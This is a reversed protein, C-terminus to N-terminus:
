YGLCTSFGLFEPQLPLPMRATACFKRWVVSQRTRTGVHLFVYKAHMCLAVVIAVFCQMGVRMHMCFGRHMHLYTGFLDIGLVCANWPFGGHLFDKFMTITNTVPTVQERAPEFLRAIWQEEESLELPVYERDHERPAM